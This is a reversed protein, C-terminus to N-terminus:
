YKNGYRAICRVAIQARNAASYNIYTNTDSVGFSQAYVYTDGPASAAWYTAKGYDNAIVLSNERIIPTHPFYFPSNSLNADPYIHSYQYMVTSADNLEPLRWGRPCVSDTAPAPVKVTYYYVGAFVASNNYLVGTRGHACEEETYGSVAACEADDQYHAPEDNPGLYYDFSEPGRMGVRPDSAARYSSGTGFLNYAPLISYSIMQGDMMSQSYNQGYFVLDNKTDHDVQWFTRGSKYGGFKNGYGIDSSENTLVQGKRLELDLNQTMWVNGDLLKAVWYKKGDRKDTLQYQQDQVMTSIVEDNIEQMYQIDDITVPTAPVVKSVVRFVLSNSFVGTPQLPGMKTGFYIEQQESAPENASFAVIPTASDMPVIPSYISNDDGDDTDDISYGWRDAPFEGRTVDGSLTPIINDKYNHILNTANENTSNKDTTFTAVFGNASNSSVGLITSDRLFTGNVGSDTVLRNSLSVSLKLDVEVNFDFSEAGDLPRELDPDDEKDVEVCAVITQQNENEGFRLTECILDDRNVDNVPTTNILVSQGSMNDGDYNFANSVRYGALANNTIAYDIDAPTSGEGKMSDRFTISVKEGESLSIHETLSPFSNDNWATENTITSKPEGDKDYVTAEIAIKGFVDPPPLQVTVTACAHMTRTEAGDEFSLWECYKKSPIASQSDAKVMASTITQSGTQPHAAVKEPTEDGEFSFFTNSETGNVLDGSVTYDITRASGDGKMWDEFSIETSEGDAITVNINAESPNNWGTEKNRGDAFVKVNGSVKEPLVPEPEEACFWNIDGFATGSAGNGNGSVLRDEVSYQRFRNLIENQMTDADAYRQGKLRITSGDNLTLTIAPNPLPDPAAETGSYLRVYGKKSDYDRLMGARPRGAQYGRSNGTSPTYVEYGLFWFGDYEACQGSVTAYGSNTSGPFRIDGTYGKPWEYYQWSLGYCTDWWTGTNNPNGCTGGLPDSGTDYCYGSANCVALAVNNTLLVLGIASFVLIGCLVLRNLASM